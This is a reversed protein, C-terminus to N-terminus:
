YWSKDSNDKSIKINQVPLLNTRIIPNNHVFPQTQQITLDTILIITIPFGIAINTEIQLVTSLYEM